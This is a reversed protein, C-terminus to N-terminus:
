FINFTIIIHGIGDKELILFAGDGGCIVYRTNDAQTLYGSYTIEDDKLVIFVPKEYLRASFILDYLPKLDNSLEDRTFSKQVGAELGLENTNIVFSYCGLKLHKM